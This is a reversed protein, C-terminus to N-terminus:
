GANNGVGGLAEAFRDRLDRSWVCAGTGHAGLV